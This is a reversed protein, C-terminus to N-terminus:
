LKKILIEMDYPAVGDGGFYPYQQFTLWSSPKNPQPTSVTMGDIKVYYTNSAWWLEAYCEQLAQKINGVPIEIRNSNVYAYLCLYFQNTPTYCRWGIRLSNQHNFMASFGWLKNWGTSVLLKEDYVCSPTFKFNIKQSYSSFAIKSEVCSHNGSKIHYSKYDAM